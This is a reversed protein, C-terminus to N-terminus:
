RSSKVKITGDLEGAAYADNLHSTVVEAVRKMLIDWAKEDDKPIGDSPTGQQLADRIDGTAHKVREDLNLSMPNEQIIPLQFRVTPYLFTTMQLFSAMVQWAKNCGNNM